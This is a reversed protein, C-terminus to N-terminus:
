QLTESMEDAPKATAWRVAGSEDTYFHRVGTKNQSVPTAFIKYHRVKRDTGLEEAVYRFRYGSKEGKALYEDLKWKSDTDPYNAVLSQMSTPFGVDPHAQFYQSARYSLARLSGVASSENAGMGNGGCGPFGSVALFMLTVQVYGFLAGM